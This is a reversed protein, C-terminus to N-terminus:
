FELKYLLLSQEEYNSYGLFAPVISSKKVEGQSFVEEGKENGKEKEQRGRKEKSFTSFQQLTNYLSIWTSIKVAGVNLSSGGPGRHLSVHSLM